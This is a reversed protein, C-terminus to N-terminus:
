LLDNIYLFNQSPLLPQEVLLKIEELRDALDAFTQKLVPGKLTHLLYMSGQQQETFDRCQIWQQNSQMYFLPPQSLHFQIDSQCEIHTILSLPVIIKFRSLSEEIHWIFAKQTPSFKCVLDGANLNVRHWAGVTLTTAKIDDGDTDAAYPDIPGDKAM